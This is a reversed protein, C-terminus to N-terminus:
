DPFRICQGEVFVGNVVVDKNLSAPRFLIIETKDPNIKMYHAFSWKIIEEICKVVDNRLVNFQFTLAFTRRGNSDDAFSSSSFMCKKFVMPQSRVNGNFLKPGLVSGQPAGFPVELSESYEGSIKVRQTRGTLFSEFWKLATGSIGIESELIELMKGIDITDFAASLDLFIVVTAMNNDFGRLVEDTVGLLMTETNHNAKYAFQTPEHLNNKDMHEDMRNSIVRETLKSFYLLNNVPRYNKWVDCDLGFKKLLPDLVSWNVGDISGESLSRNILIVLVPLMIELAEKFLKSPIPDEACTKIGHKTILKRLEDENTPQFETLQKGHFPRTYYTPVNEVKPISKRILKIKDVFYNNFDNALKKPDDHNPLVKKKNRDLLENAVKFLSKQSNAAGDVLKSYHKTQKTLAMEACVQKQNIYNNRNEETRNKKWIRELKRRSTRNERYEKDIWDAESERTKRTQIPCHNDLIKQSAEHYMLYSEKFNLNSINMAEYANKLDEKFQELDIDNLKRYSIVQTKNHPNPSPIELKIPLHDTVLGFTERIVEHHFELEFENAYIHDLIHGGRHTSEQVMQRLGCANMLTALKQAEINDEVDAWVNFDGMVLMMEGRNLMKDMFKSFEEEFTLFSVEQKRYVGLLMLKKKSQLTLTVNAYEFSSFQSCSAAGEKVMLQKRYLIAVGGGRKGERFAHHLEYGCRKIIQSFTGNKADFWTETVCAISIENDQIIQVFNELKAENLISWM